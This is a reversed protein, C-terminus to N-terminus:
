SILLNWSSTTVNIVPRCYYPDQINNSTKDLTMIRVMILVKGFQFSIDVFVPFLPHSPHHFAGFVPKSIYSITPFYTAEIKLVDGRALSPCTTLFIFNRRLKYHLGGCFSWSSWGNFTSSQGPAVSFIPETLLWFLSWLGRLNHRKGLRNWSAM